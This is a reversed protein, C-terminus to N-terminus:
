LMDKVIAAALGAVLIVAPGAILWAGFRRLFRGRYVARQRQERARLARAEAERRERQQQRYTPDVADLFYGWSYYLAWLGVLWLAASLLVSTSAGFSAPTLELLRGLPTPGFQAILADGPMFFLWQLWLWVDSPTLAGDRNMDAIFQWQRHQWWSQTM